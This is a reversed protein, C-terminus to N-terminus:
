LRRRMAQQHDQVHPRDRRLQNQDYLSQSLRRGAAQEKDRVADTSVGLLSAGENRMDLLFLPRPNRLVAISYRDLEEELLLRDASKEYGFSREVVATM